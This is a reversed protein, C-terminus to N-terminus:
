GRDEVSKILSCPDPVRVGVRIGSYNRHYRLDPQMKTAPANSLVRFSKRVM